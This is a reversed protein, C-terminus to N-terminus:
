LGANVTTIIKIATEKMPDVYKSLSVFKFKSKQKILQGGECDIWRYGFVVRAGDELNYRGRQETEREYRHLEFEDLVIRLIRVPQGNKEECIQPLSSTYERFTKIGNNKLLTEMYDELYVDVNPLWYTETTETINSERDSLYFGTPAPTYEALIPEIVIRYKSMQSVDVSSEKRLPNGPSGPTNVKKGAESSYDAYFIKEIHTSSVDVMPGGCQIFLSGGALFAVVWIKIYGSTKM